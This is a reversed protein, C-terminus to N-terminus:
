LDEVEILTNWDSERQSESTWRWFFGNEAALGLKPAKESYLQHMLKKSEKSVVFVINSPEDSIGNLAKMAEASPEMVGNKSKMPIVGEQDIIIIRKRSMQYRGEIMNFELEKFGHKFKIIRQDAGFGTKQYDANGRLPDYARKLDVLFKQAWKLSTHRQVFEFQREM